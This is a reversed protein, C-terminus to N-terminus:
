NAQWKDDCSQPAIQPRIFCRHPSRSPSLSVFGLSLDWQSVLAWLFFPPFFDTSVATTSALSWRQSLVRHVALLIFHLWMLSSGLLIWILETVADGQLRRLHPPTALLPDGKWDVSLSNSAKNYIQVEPSSQTYILMGSTDMHTVHLVRLGDRENILKRLLEKERKRGCKEKDRGDRGGTNLEYLLRNVSAIM